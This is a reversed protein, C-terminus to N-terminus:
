FSHKKKAYRNMPTFFNMTSYGWFNCLDRKTLPDKGKYAAENFECIPLLEVANIGLSKLYPIKEVVGLYTGPHETKSSPDQTFARVHMEYIVLLELPLHPSNVGEWSFHPDHPKVVGRPRYEKETAKWAHPSSLEKAYPDFLYNKGIKYAYEFTSPLHCVELHWISETKQLPTELFPFPEGPAFLALVVQQTEEAFVAFNHGQATAIAGLPTPLGPLTPYSNM